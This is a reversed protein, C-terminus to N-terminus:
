RMVELHSRLGAEWGEVQSVHAGANISVSLGGDRLTLLRLGISRPGPMTLFIAGHESLPRDGLGLTALTSYSFTLDVPVNLSGGQVRSIREPRRPPVFLGAASALVPQAAGIREALERGFTPTRGIASSVPLVVAGVMNGVRDALRHNYRRLDVLVRISADSRLQASSAIAHSLRRMVGARASEDPARQSRWRELISRGIHLQAHVSPAAHEFVLSSSSSAEQRRDVIARKLNVASSRPATVFTLAALSLIDSATIRTTGKFDSQESYIQRVVARTFSADGLVHDRVIAYRSTSRLVTLNAGSPQEVLERLTRQVLLDDTVVEAEHVSLHGRPAISRLSQLRQRLDQPMGGGDLVYATKLGLWRYDAIPYQTWREM